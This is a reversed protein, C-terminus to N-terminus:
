QSCRSTSPSLSLLPFHSHFSNILKSPLLPCNQRRRLPWHSCHHQVKRAELLSSHHSCFSSLSLAVSIHNYSYIFTSFFLSAIVLKLSPSRHHPYPRRRRRLASNPPRHPSRRAVVPSITTEMAGFTGHPTSLSPFM